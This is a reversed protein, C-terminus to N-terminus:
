RAVLRPRGAEALPVSTFNWSLTVRPRQGTYPNVSHLFESAFAVMTGEAMDPIFPRTPRGPERACCWEIRPDLFMLKGSFGDDPAADGADVMYVVSVDARVHAHPPCYDGTRYINGWSDDCYVPGLATARHALMVARAHVLTAAPAGWAPLERVKFGCNWRLTHTTADHFRADGAAAQVADLLAPRYSAADDFRTVVIRKGSLVRLQQHAPWTPLSSEGVRVEAPVRGVDSAAVSGMTDM